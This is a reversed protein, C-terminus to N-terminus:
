LTVSTALRLVTVPPDAAVKDSAALLAGVALALSIGNPGGGIVLVPVIPAPVISTGRVVRFHMSTSKQAFTRRTAVGTDDNELVVDVRLSVRVQYYAAQPLEGTSWKADGLIPVDDAFTTGPDQMAADAEDPSAMPGRVSRHLVVHLRHKQQSGQLEAAIADQVLRADWSTVIDVGCGGDPDNM